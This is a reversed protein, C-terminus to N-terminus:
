KADKKNQYVITSFIGRLRGTDQQSKVTNNEEYKQFVEALFDLERQELKIM